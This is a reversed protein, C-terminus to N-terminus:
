SLLACESPVGFFSWKFDAVVIAHSNFTQKTRMSEVAFAQAAALGLVFVM